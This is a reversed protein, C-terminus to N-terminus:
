YILREIRGEAARVIPDHVGALTLAGDLDVAVAHENGPAPPSPRFVPVSVGFPTPIEGAPFMNTTMASWKRTPHRLGLQGLAPADQQDHCDRAISHANGLQRPRVRPEAGPASPRLAGPLTMARREARGPTRAQTDGADDGFPIEDSLAWDVESGRPTFRVAQVKAGPFHEHVAEVWRRGEWACIVRGVEDLTWVKRERCDRALAHAEQQTRVIALVAGHPMRTEWVEPALPAHGAETAGAELAAWARRMAESHARVAALDQAAYAAQWKQWQRDFRERLDDPVLMRLRGVGWKREMEDTLTDVSQVLGQIATAVGANKRGWTDTM